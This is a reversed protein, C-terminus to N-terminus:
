VASVGYEELRRCARRENEDMAEQLRLQFHEPPEGAEFRVPEGYSFVGRCFPYPLLFRDWSGFRHGRSCVFTMPIVARGTIRALHAIGEKLQRRPGKPGDPTIGFDVPERGQAVLARFAARGGRTSSGRVTGQGFREMVRAILEGDKSASILIKAGPGRYGKIMLLLQEHWFAFILHEGREWFSRPGEEGLIVPRISFHLGRIIWAALFPLCTLLVWEELRKKM